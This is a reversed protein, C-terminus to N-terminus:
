SEVILDNSTNLSKIIQDIRIRAIVRTLIPDPRRRRTCLLVPELQSPDENVQPVVAISRTRQM